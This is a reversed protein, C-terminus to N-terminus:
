NNTSDSAIYWHCSTRILGKVPVTITQHLSLSITTKHMAHSASQIIADILLHAPTALLTSSSHNNIKIM